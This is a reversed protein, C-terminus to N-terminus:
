MEGMSDEHHDPGRLGNLGELESLENEITVKLVAAAFEIGTASGVQVDVALITLGSAETQNKHQVEDVCQLIFTHGFGVSDFDADVQAFLLTIVRLQPTETSQSPRQGRM